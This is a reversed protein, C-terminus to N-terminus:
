GGGTPLRHGEAHAEEVAILGAGKGRLRSQAQAQQSHSFAAMTSAWTSTRPHYHTYGNASKRVPLPLLVIFHLCLPCHVALM